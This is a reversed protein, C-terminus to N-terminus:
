GDTTSRGPPTSAGAGGHRRHMWTKLRQEAHLSIRGGAALTRPRVGPHTLSLRCNFRDLAGWRYKYGENGRLFDFEGARDTDIAVRMAHATLVTGLSLRALSPEFGGLYYTCSGGKQFCYIAARTEGDLSLLHLRLMDAKLLAAAVDAHFARARRSAFAGPLWRQNWRRQHLEFFDDLDASLTEPTALRYEVAYQKELARAYYGVNQRLKKGLTKRFTDWTPALPLFPCTEGIWRAVDAGGASRGEDASTRLAVAEPRVQQLDIWDWRRKNEGLYERFATAVGDEHGPMAIVDLYDSGGTGVFRAVRLPTPAASLYLAAFGISEGDAVFHLAWLRRGRGHYKWWTETWEWTQFVTAAPSAAAVRRWSAAHEESLQDFQLIERVDV